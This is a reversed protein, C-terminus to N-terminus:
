ERDLWEEGRPAVLTRVTASKATSEADAWTGMTVDFVPSTVGFWYRENKYHHLLHLRKMWRGWLTWPRAGPRHAAFHVWEYYALALYNGFSFVAASGIDRTLALAVLFYVVGLSVSFKPDNFLYDLSEPDGHHSVHNASLSKGARTGALAHYVFRHVLYESPFFILFGGILFSLSGPHVLALVGAAALGTWKPLMRPHTFYPSVRAAAM